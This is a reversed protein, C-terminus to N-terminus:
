KERQYNLAVVIYKFLTDKLQQSEPLKDYAVICPHTKAAEDKVPGYVWGAAVKFDVWSQHLEEPSEGKLAKVVGQFASDRTELSTEEWSASVNEEGLAIQLARNAEHCVRATDLATVM